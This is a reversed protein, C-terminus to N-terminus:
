KVTSPIILNYQGAAGCGIIYPEFYILTGEKIKAFGSACGILEKGSIGSPKFGKDESALIYAAQVLNETDYSPYDRKFDEYAYLRGTHKDITYFYTLNPDGCSSHYDLDASVIYTAWLKNEFIKHCVTIGRAGPIMPYKLYGPGCANRTELKKFVTEWGSIFQDVNLKPDVSKTLSFYQTDDIDYSLGKPIMENLKEFLAIKVTESPYYKDIHLGMIMEFRISDSPKCWIATWKKHVMNKNAAIAKPIDIYKILPNKAVASAYYTRLSDALHMVRLTDIVCQPEDSEKIVGSVDASDNVSATLSQDDSTNAKDSFCSQVFIASSLSILFVFFKYM